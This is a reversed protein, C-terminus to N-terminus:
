LDFRSRRRLSACCADPSSGAVFVRASAVGLARVSLRDFAAVSVGDGAGGGHVIRERRDEDQEDRREPIEGSAEAQERPGPRRRDDGDRGRKEQERRHRPVAEADGLELAEREHDGRDRREELEAPREAYRREASALEAERHEPQERQGRDQDVQVEERKVPTAGVHVQVVHRVVIEAGLVMALEAVVAEIGGHQARLRLEIVVTETGDFGALELGVREYVDATQEDPALRHLAGESGLPPPRELRVDVVETLRESGLPPVHQPVVSEVRWRKPRQDAARDRVEDRAAAGASNERDGQDVGEELREGERHDARREAELDPHERDDIEARDKAGSEAPGTACVETMELEGAHEDRGGGEM